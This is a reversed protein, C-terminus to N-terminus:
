CRLMERKMLILRMRLGFVAMNLNIGAENAQLVIEYIEKQKETAEDIIFTRTTDSCLGDKIVGMDILLFDGNKFARNGPTGHTLAAKEGALAITSFSPGDAGFKRMLYELEATLELETMGVEVKKIGEALM